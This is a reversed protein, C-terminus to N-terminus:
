KLNMNKKEELKLLGCLTKSKMMLNISNYKHSKTTLHPFENM